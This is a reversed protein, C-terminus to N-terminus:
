KSGWMCNKQTAPNTTGCVDTHKECSGDLFSHYMIDKEYVLYGQFVRILKM